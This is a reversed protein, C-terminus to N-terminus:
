QVEAPAEAHPLRPLSTRILKEPAVRAAVLNFRIAEDVGQSLLHPNANKNCFDPERTIKPNRFGLSFM